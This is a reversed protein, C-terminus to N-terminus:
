EPCKALIDAIRTRTLLRDMPSFKRHQENVDRSALNVYNRVMELTTHGLIMQLSFADGGNKIYQTAFTHRLTHPSVRVGTIAAKRGCRKVMLQVHRSTLRRGRRSVILLDNDTQIM